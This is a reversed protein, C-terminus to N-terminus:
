GTALSLALHDHCGIQGPGSGGIKSALFVYPGVRAPVRYLGSTWGARASARVRQIEFATARPVAMLAAEVALTEGAGFPRCEGRPSSNVFLGVVRDASDVYYTAYRGGASEIAVERVARRKWESGPVARRGAPWDLRTESIRLPERWGTKAMRLIIQTVPVTLTPEGQPVSAAAAANARFREIRLASIRLAGEREAAYIEDFRARREADEERATRAPPICSDVIERALAEAPVPERFRDQVAQSVCHGQANQTSPPAAVAASLGALGAAAFGARV